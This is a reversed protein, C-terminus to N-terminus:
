PGMAIREQRRDPEHSIGNQMVPRIGDFAAIHRVRLDYPWKTSTNSHASQDMGGYNPLPEPAVSLM